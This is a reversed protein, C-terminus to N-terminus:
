KSFDASKLTYVLTGLNYGIPTRLRLLVNRHENSDAKTTKAIWATQTAGPMEADISIKVPYYTITDEFDVGNRKFNFVTGEVKTEYTAKITQVAKTFPAYVVFNPATTVSTNIARLALLLQENDIYTYKKQNTDFAHQTTKETKRNVVTAMGRTPTENYEVDVTYNVETYCTEPTAGASTTPAHNFIEKHMKIPQMLASKKFIITSTTTDTKTIPDQNKMSFTVDITLSTTYEYYEFNGYKGDNKGILTTTYEGNSYSLTYGRSELRLGEEMTIDYVLKEEAQTSVNADEYWYDKFTVRSANSTCATLMTAGLIFSTLSIITKRKM